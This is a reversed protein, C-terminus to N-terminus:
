NTPAAPYETVALAAAIPSQNHGENGLGLM